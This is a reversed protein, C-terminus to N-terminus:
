GDRSGACGTSACAAVVCGDALADVDVGAGDRRPPIVVRTEDPAIRWFDTESIKPCDCDGGGSCGGLRRFSADDETGAEGILMRWGCSFVAVGATGRCKGWVASGCRVGLM